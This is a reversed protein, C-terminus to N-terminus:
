LACVPLNLFLVVPLNLSFRGNGVNIIPTRLPGLGLSTLVVFVCWVGVVVVVRVCAWFPLLRGVRFFRLWLCFFRSAM